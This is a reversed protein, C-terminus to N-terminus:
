CLVSHDQVYWVCVSMTMGNPHSYQSRQGLANYDFDWVKSGPATITSLWNTDTYTYTTENSHYDNMSTINGADDYGYTLVSDDYDTISTLRGADDYAYRLGDGGTTLWDEIETLRANSDYFYSATHPTTGYEVKSLLGTTGNYIYKPNDTNRRAGSQERDFDM